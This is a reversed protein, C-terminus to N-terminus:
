RRWHESVRHRIGARDIAESARARAEARIAREDLPVLLEGERLLLTGNVMVTDVDTGHASFVLASVARNPVTIHTRDLDFAVIDARKGVELSGILHDLGLAQASGITAMEIVREATMFAPDLHTVNQILAAFKMQEVMDPSCNVYTGDTGLGVTLGAQFMKALPTIGDASYANSVPNTVVSVNERAMHDIERDTLWLCHIMVWNSTLAGLRVLYDIDGGGTMDRLEKISLWSSGASCHNTIRLNHRQALEVGDLIIENSTSNHLLWMAGTEIALGMHIIGGAGDWQKVLSEALAIEEARSRPYHHPPHQTSFVPDPADRLEKAVLQRVGVELVPEITARITEEDNENNLHNLSTTTGTRLQELAGLYAAIRLDETRLAGKLPFTVEDIWEELLLGDGTNKFLSGWFHNHGNILGPMVLMGHMDLVQDAEPLPDDASGIAAITDDRTLVWGGPLVRRDADVTVVYGNSFLVTPV